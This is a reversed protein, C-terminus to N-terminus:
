YKGLVNKDHYYQQLAQKLSAARQRTEASAERGVGFFSLDHSEHDVTFGHEAFWADHNVISEFDSGSLNRYYGQKRAVTLPSAVPTFEETGHQKRGISACTMLVLGGPKVMRLMNLWTQRWGPNHEMAECSIVADFTGSAAGYDEGPCVVDVDRGEGIDLGTYDCGQFFQRVSGNINLSGIELVKTGEFYEPLFQKVSQVYFFQQVHAM